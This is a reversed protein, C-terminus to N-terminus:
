GRISIFKDEPKSEEVAEMLYFQVKVPTKEFDYNIIKLQQKCTGIRWTEEWIERMASHRMDGGPEM